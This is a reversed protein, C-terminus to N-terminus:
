PEHNLTQSIRAEKPLYLRKRFSNSTPKSQEESNVAAEDASM